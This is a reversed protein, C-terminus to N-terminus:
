VGRFGQGPGSFREKGNGSSLATLPLTITFTTGEFPRSAVHITGRHLTVIHKVISLGLGTGGLRRSRSKDATYFREFIRGLHERPIGVGTDAVKVVAINQSSGLSITIGGNETYKVANDVLNTFLQELRFPDAKIVVGARTGEIVSTLNKGALVPEFISLVNEILEGLHVDEVHLRTEEAELESLDLLDTVINMLRDTHRKIIWLYEQHSEACEEMLTETFGKIATLPTRLEHSVNVALDRKIKELRKMGTIDHLLMVRTKGSRVPTLSCLYIKEGLEIEGSVPQQPAQELLENLRQSRIVEWPCRGVIGEAGAIERASQNALQIKGQLDLVLLGESMSSLIGELEERSQSIETFSREIREAMDNFSESLEQIEDGTRLVVRTGFDGEAIRRSARGLERIPRSVAHSFFFAILLSLAAIIAAIELAGARMSRLLIDIDELPMSMRLVPQTEGDPELPLAVYLMDKDLTTSYRVSRGMSGGLATLVEPRNGHNEMTQATNESDALVRGRDDIVTIRTHTEEGIGSVLSHLEGPLNDAILPGVQHRLALGLNQLSRTSTEVSHSSLSHFVLALILGAVVLILLLYSIFLKLFVPRRM